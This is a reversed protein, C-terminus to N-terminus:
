VHEHISRNTFYSDRSSGYFVLTYDTHHESGALDVLTLVGEVVAPKTGTVTTIEFPRM